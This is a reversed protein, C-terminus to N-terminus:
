FFITCRQDSFVLSLIHIFSSNKETKIKMSTITPRDCKYRPESVKRTHVVLFRSITNVKHILCHWYASVVGAFRRLRSCLGPNTSFAQTSKTHRRAHNLGDNLKVTKATRSGYCATTVYSETEVRPKTIGTKLALYQKFVDQRNPYKTRTCLQPMQSPYFKLICLSMIQVRRLINSKCPEVATTPWSRRQALSGGTAPAEVQCCVVCEYLCGRGPPIRVRLWLLCAAASRSRLGRPWHSQGEYSILTIFDLLITTPQSYQM